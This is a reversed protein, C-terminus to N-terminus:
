EVVIRLGESHGGFEPAYMCEVTSIGNSFDGSHAVRLDYTFLHTGPGIRDFFFHMGADRISQYYGIGGQYRHGSLAEVPELGSARLDKLHVFDLWRDTHLEIRITLRDGPKLPRAQELPILTTGGDSAEKLLVQKRITFPGGHATVKDMQELYQWHLAGWQLGDSTTTVRVEGMAPKVETGAWTRQFQGTGAEQADTKVVQGGVTIQPPEKADLLDDGTLLLAYVAEATAKTTGWDTSRKLTLLYQRLGDVADKDAAVEHFAEILLAHTETPFTNWDMGRDFGKWYMGLEDSRTAREKLSALVARATAKDDMRELVVAIMAQEQLGYGLWEAALRQKLFQQATATSGSAAWRPFYSRALLYHLETYGVRYNALEEKSLRRLREKHDRDAEADLWRVAKQLMQQTPGDTRLDAAGLRELHGSGAVIHQTISRSAQMGAFWPWAGSPLQQQELKRLAAAEETAMRELDFLLALRGRRERENNAQLVWPTEELLVSKLEPNKELTALFSGKDSSQAAAKWAAFVAKIAPRQEVVSAALRNAYYRSFLQEACEHPFEMLYPLAQVAYWAPNPTFDLTLSHHRLTASPGSSPVQLTSGGPRGGQALGVLKELRFSHTGAKTITIPLSETVLVRDTLVPLVQEEGDSFSGATATIRVAIADIGPEVTIPWSVEASKGPAASFSRIPLPKGLNGPLAANNRPDFLEIRAVGSVAAGELVDVKATLTIRDGERLFRPLNPTVMLQKQTVTERSFQALKLDSTHALGLLKWRTLAEPMTFRLVVSSDRDTLLDPFFFATERFDTRVPQAGSSGAHEASHTAETEKLREEPETAALGAAMVNGRFARTDDGASMASNDDMVRANAYFVPGRIRRIEFEFTNLRQYLRVTDSPMVVKDRYVTNSRMLGFPGAASWYQRASYGPWQFMDWQNVVFQDLSADYLTTLVQAAVKEGKPGSIKLRWEEKAGPLLKDRFSTWEVKLDKNSWPVDIPQTSSFHRGRAVGSVHVVFGGRDAEMVPIEIREQSKSLTISRRETIRGDREVELLMRANPLSSSLLLVASGGPEVRANLADVRLDDRFAAPGSSSSFLTFSRQVRVEEGQPDQVIVEIRYSGVPWSRAERLPLHEGKARWAKRQWVTDTAPWNLADNEDNYLDNPFREAHAASDLVFRDPREWLRERPIREPASVRVIRVDMPLDVAEGNLNRVVLALSDVSSADLADGLGLDIDISRYGVQFITSGERTEGNIDTVAAEVTYSFTPDAARPVSRDAEATFRITFRGEADSEASGNAVETRQGWGPIHGWGRGRWWPLRAERYVTYRVEAGNIPVGAYSRAVGSVTAEEGLKPTDRVPDVVVEFRPRKYEEVQFWRSGNAEELRMQGTLGAPAKSTGHFAGFADTTVAISDVQQGNADYIRVATSYGSKVVTTEGRKVTVIGKFHLEQGPRYIARDTFLFTRLSDQGNNDQHPYHWRDGTFYVDAGQTIRWRLSGRETPTPLSARGDADSNTEGIKVFRRESSGFELQFLEAKAGGIPAGSNRDLILLELPDNSNRELAALGTSRFSSYTLVDVGSRFTEANSVLVTYRGLPLGQVPLDVLHENLDGDDPLAVSWQLVPRQKLLGDVRDHGWRLGSNIDEKDEVIRVFATPVNTYKVALKFPTSPLVAQEVELSLSPEELRAKLARANHAGFSTPAHAIAADCLERATRKEWKHTGDGLRQFQSGRESHWQALAVTVESWIPLETVRSRLVELAARYLSDKNALTSHQRVFALRQLSIDTLAIPHDDGLHSREWHQYTRLAQFEWASSDQRGAPLDRHQLRLFAFPEYLDFHRPDDLRFRWAPETLRTESNSFLATARRALLDFVTADDFAGNRLHRQKGDGKPRTAAYPDILLEGLELAPIWKLTDRAALSATAHAIIRAMYSRQDWTDLDDNPGDLPTRELIRWRNDSYHMWYADALVSHLLPRLPINSADYARGIGQALDDASPVRFSTDSLALVRAELAALIEKDEVGTRRQFTSRQMWARFETRWDGIRQAAFLIEDTRELASAFLGKSALSDITAWRPDGKDTTSGTRKGQACGGLASVLLLLLLPLRLSRIM